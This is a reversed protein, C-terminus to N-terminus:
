WGKKERRRGDAPASMGPALGVRRVRECAGIHYRCAVFVHRRVITRKSPVIRRPRDFVNDKRNRTEYVAMTKAHTQQFVFDCLVVLNTFCTHPERLGTMGSCRGGVGNWHRCCVQLWPFAGLRCSRLLLIADVLICCFM